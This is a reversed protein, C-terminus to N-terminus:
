LEKLEKKLLKIYSAMQRAIRKAESHCEESDILNCCNQSFHKFDYKHNNKDPISKYIISAYQNDRVEVGFINSVVEEVIASKRKQREKFEGSKIYNYSEDYYEVTFSLNYNIYLEMVVFVTGYTGSQFKRVLYSLCPVYAGHYYESAAESDTKWLPKMKLEFMEQELNEWFDNLVKTKIQPLADSIKMAALLEDKNSILNEMNGEMIDDGHLKEILLAYQKIFSDDIGEAVCIDMCQELWKKIYEYYSVKDKIRSIDASGISQESAGHGDLTIYIIQYDSIGLKVRVYEDYRFLQEGQDCADIKLEVVVCKRESRCKGKTEFFLDIRGYDVTAYEKEVDWEATIYSAPMDMVEMFKQVFVSSLRKNYPFSLINFIMKEHIDYELRELDLLSFINYDYGLRSRRALDDSVIASADSIMSKMILNKDMLEELVINEKSKLIIQDGTGNLTM